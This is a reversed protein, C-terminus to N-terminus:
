SVPQAPLSPSGECAISSRLFVAKKSSLMFAYQLDVVSQRLCKSNLLISPYSGTKDYLVEQFKNLHNVVQRIDENMKAVKHRTQHAEVKNVKDFQHIIPAVTGIAKGLRVLAEEVKYSGISSKLERNLHEM